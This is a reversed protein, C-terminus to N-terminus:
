RWILLGLPLVTELLLYQYTLVLGNCILLIECVTDNHDGFVGCCPMDDYLRVARPRDEGDQSGQGSGSHPSTKVALGEVM